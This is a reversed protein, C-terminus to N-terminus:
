PLVTGDARVRFALRPGSSSPIVRTLRVGNAFVNLLVRGSTNERCANPDAVAVSIETNVPAGGVIGAFQREGLSDMYFRPEKWSVHLHPRNVQRVCELPFRAATRGGTQLTPLGTYSFRVTATAPATPGSDSCASALVALLALVTVRNVRSFPSM